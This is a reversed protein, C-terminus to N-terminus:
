NSGEYILFTSGAACKHSFAICQNPLRKTGGPPLPVNSANNGESTVVSGNDLNLFAQVSGNNLVAGGPINLFVTQQTTDSIFEGGPPGFTNTQSPM